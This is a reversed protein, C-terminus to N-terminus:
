EFVPPNDRLKQALGAPFYPQGTEVHAVIRARTEPKIGTWRDGLWLIAVSVDCDEELWQFDGTFPTWLGACVKRLQDRLAPALWV